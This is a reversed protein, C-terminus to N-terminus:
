SEFTIDTFLPLENDGQGDDFQPISTTVIDLELLTIKIELEKYKKM